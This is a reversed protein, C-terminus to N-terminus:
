GATLGHAFDSRAVYRSADHSPLPTSDLRAVLLKAHKLLM